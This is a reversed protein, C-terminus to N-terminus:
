LDEFGKEVVREFKGEDIAGGFGYCAVLGKLEGEMWGLRERSLREAGPREWIRLWAQVPTLEGELGLKGALEFLREIEANSTTWM